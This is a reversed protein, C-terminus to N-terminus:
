KDHEYGKRRGRKRNRTLIVIPPCHQFKGRILIKGDHIGEMVYAVCVIAGGRMLSRASIENQDRRSSRLQDFIDFQEVFFSTDELYDRACSMPVVDGNIKLHGKKEGRCITAM